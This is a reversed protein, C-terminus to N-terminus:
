TSRGGPGAAPGAAGPAAAEGAPTQRARMPGGQRGYRTAIVEALISLAIEAASQAGIDLGIPTRIRGLADDGTGEEKLMALVSGARRRSGLMGIYGADTTLVERLVPLDFKYDHAILVIASTADFDFGRVIESPSGARVEDAGPFRSADAFRDRGEVVVVHHGLTKAMSVLPAAIAGGGVVVLLPGRGLVDFFAERPAPGSTLPLTRSGGRALRESALAAAEADLAAAGLTGAVTRDDLVAMARRGTEGGGPVPLPSVVVGRGGERVRQRVVDYAAMLPDEGALDLAQVLVDVRGACTLGLAHADADGLEISLLRDSSTALVTEAARVVEADVCGGITVAGLISGDRGVWMRAGEKRPSTGHTAVLTALAARREKARIADLDDLREMTGNLTRHAMWKVPRAGTRSRLYRPGGGAQQPPWRCRMKGADWVQISVM